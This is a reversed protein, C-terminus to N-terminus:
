PLTLPIELMLLGRAEEETRQVSAKLTLIEDRPYAAYWKLKASLGYSFDESYPAFTTFPGVSFHSREGEFSANTDLSFYFSDPSMIVPDITVPDFSPVSSRLENGSHMGLRGGLREGQLNLHNGSQFRVGL